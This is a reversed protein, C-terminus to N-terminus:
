CRDRMLQLQDAHFEKRRLYRNEYGGDRKLGASLIDPHLPQDLDFHYADGDRLVAFSLGGPETGMGIAALYVRDVADSIAAWGGAFRWVRAPVDTGGVRWRVLPWQACQEAQERSRQGLARLFGDPLPKSHDPITINVLATCAYGAVHEMPLEGCALTARAQSFTEVLVTSEGDLSRHGLSVWSVPDGILDGVSELWRSGPWSPDLGYVPFDVPPSPAILGRGPRYMAGNHVVLYFGAKVSRNRDLLGVM